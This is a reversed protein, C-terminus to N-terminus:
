KRQNLMLPTLLTGFRLKYMYGNICWINRWEKGTAGQMKCWYVQKFRLQICSNDLRFYNTHLWGASGISQSSDQPIMNYKVGYCNADVRRSSPTSAATRTALSDRYYHFKLTDIVIGRKIALSYNDLYSILYNARFTYCPVTRLSISQKYMTCHQTWTQPM